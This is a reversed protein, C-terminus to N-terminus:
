PSPYERSPASRTAATARMAPAAWYRIVIWPTTCLVRSTLDDDPSRRRADHRRRRPHTGDVRDGAVGAETPSLLPARRHGGLVRWAGWISAVRHDPPRPAAMKLDVDWTRCSRSRCRRTEGARAATRIASSPQSAGFAAERRRSPKRLARVRARARNRIRSISIGVVQSKLRCRPVSPSSVYLTNNRDRISSSRSNCFYTSMGSCTNQFFSHNIM